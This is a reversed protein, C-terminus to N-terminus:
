QWGWEWGGGVAGCGGGGTVMVVAARVARWLTWEVTRVGSNGEKERCLYIDIKDTQMWSSRVFASIM